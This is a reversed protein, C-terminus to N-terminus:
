RQVLRQGLNSSSRLLYGDPDAVVFQRNGNEIQEQRYWREELPIVPSFGAACVRDYTATVDAVEIQFDRRARLPIGAAHDSLAL